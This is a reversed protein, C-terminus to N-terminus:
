GHSVRRAVGAIRRAHDQLNAIQQPTRPKDASLYEATYRSCERALADVDGDEDTGDSGISKGVPEYMLSTLYDPIHESLLVLVYAPMAVDRKYTALTAKNIGTEASLLTLTLGHDREALRLM